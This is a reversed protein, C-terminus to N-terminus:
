AANEYCGRTPQTPDNIPAGSLDFLDDAILSADVGPNAILTSTPRGTTGDVGDAFNAQTLNGTEPSDLNEAGAGITDIYCYTAVCTGSSSIGLRWWRDFVCNLLTVTGTGTNAYVAGRQSGAGADGLFTCNKYTVAGSSISCVQTNATASQRVDILTYIVTVNVGDLACPRTSNLCVFTCRRIKCVDGSLTWSGVRLCDTFTAATILVNVGGTTGTGMSSNTSGTFTGGVVTLTALTQGNPHFAFHNDAGICDMDEAYMQVNRACYIAEDGTTAGGTGDRTSINSLEINCVTAVSTSMGFAMGHCGGANQHRGIQLDEFRLYTRDMAYIIDNQLLNGDFYPKNGTGYAGFRIRNGATGSEGISLQQQTWTDGRKFGVSQGPLLTLATVDALDRFPNSITGTGGSGAPTGTSSSVYYTFEAVPLFLPRSVMRSVPRNIQRTTM